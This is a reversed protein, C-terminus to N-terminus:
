AAVERQQFMYQLEEAVVEVGESILVESLATVEADSLARVTQLIVPQQAEMTLTAKRTGPGLGLVERLRQFVPDAASARVTRLEDNAM